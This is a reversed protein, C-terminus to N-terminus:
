CACKQPSGANCQSHLKKKLASQVNQTAEGYSAGKKSLGSSRRTRDTLMSSLLPGLICVARVPRHIVAVRFIARCPFLPDRASVGERAM